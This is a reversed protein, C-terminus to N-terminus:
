RILYPVYRREEEGEEGGVLGAVERESRVRVGLPVLGAAKRPYRRICLLTVSCECRLELRWNGATIRHVPGSIGEQEVLIVAAHLKPWPVFHIESSVDVLKEWKVYQSNAFVASPGKPM